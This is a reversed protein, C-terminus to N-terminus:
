THLLTHEIQHIQKADAHDLHKVMGIAKYRQSKLLLCCTTHISCPTSSRIFRLRGSYHPYESFTVYGMKLGGPIYEKVFLYICLYIYM